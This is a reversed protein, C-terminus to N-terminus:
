QSMWLGMHNNLLVPRVSLVETSESSISPSQAEERSENERVHTERMAGHGGTM